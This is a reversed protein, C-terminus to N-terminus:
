KWELKGFLSVVMLWLGPDVGAQALRGRVVKQNETEAQFPNQQIECFGSANEQRFTSNANRQAERLQQELDAILSIAKGRANHIAQVQSENLRCMQTTHAVKQQAEKMEFTHNQELAATFASHRKCMEDMYKEHIKAANSLNREVQAKECTTQKIFEKLGEIEMGRRDQEAKRDAEAKRRRVHFSRLKLQISQHLSKKQSIELNTELGIIRDEVDSLEKETKDLIRQRCQSRLAMKLQATEFDSALAMISADMDLIAAEKELLIIELAAKEGILDENRLPDASIAAVIALPVRKFAFELAKEWIIWVAEGFELLRCNLACVVMRKAHLFMATGVEYQGQVEAIPRATASTREQCNSRPSFPSAM